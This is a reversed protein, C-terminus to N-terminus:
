FRLGAPSQLCVGLRPQRGLSSPVTGRGLLPSSRLFGSSMCSTLLFSGGQGRGMSCLRQRAGPSATLMAPLRSLASVGVRQRDAGRAPSAPGKGPGKRSRQIQAELDCM